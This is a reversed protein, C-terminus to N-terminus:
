APLSRHKGFIFKFMNFSPTIEFQPRSFRLFKVTNSFPLQPFFFISNKKSFIPIENIELKTTKETAM